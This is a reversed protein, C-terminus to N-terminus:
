APESISEEPLDEQKHVAGCNLCEVETKNKIVLTGVDCTPCKSKLPRKWSTFQCGAEPDDRNYNTCGYFVRGRRTRLEILDGTGCQPCTVGIYEKWQETYKCDPYRNCGIFKGWRGYRVVLDGEKCEPCARGIPEEKILRPMHAQAHHLHEEFSGYFDHLVPVWDREGTAIDDLRDEIQATYDFNMENPFYETLLDNVLVGTETPYLRKDQRTVYDRNQIVAVTPAYTSPRGIGREELAKVLSAETYRPPPQTFHQEPMLKLLDLWEEPTMDPFTRGEDNESTDDENRAEEYIALFGKFRLTSGSARFLYPREAADQAGATIDVRLTDYVANAMQSAVFRKWILSYLRYQDRKLSNKVSDPTRMVDTPRIAEHAEQAGKAKTKYIPPKDPLYEAGYENTVYERARQQAESSVNMSDTRMYTILGVEGEDDLAIGEYLQQAISMTKASTFNIARSAEQQMTSTTFPASPRRQRKGRKIEQVQYTSRELTELHPQVAEESGLEVDEGNIKALRAVFPKDPLDQKALEADITWYETPVFSEIEKEREVVLRVAISQVRGASLRNRVRDWLLETLSYGVLRDLIRRAQQANVLQMDLDRPQAFSEQIADRTIQNFVVRQTLDPDIDAAHILHWAIAEGERDPDTALYIHKAKAAAAKLEKVVDRKENPVRYTPEFDNEVDVSLRSRLLDRVHGISAKVTYGKGLYRGVTKAKAPSEVIVLNGSRRPTSKKKTNAKAM